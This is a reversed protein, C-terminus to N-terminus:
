SAAETMEPGCEIVEREIEIFEGTEKTELKPIREIKKVKRCSPPLEDPYTVLTVNDVTGRLCTYNGRVAKQRVQIGFSRYWETAQQYTTNGHFGLDVKGEHDVSLQVLRDGPFMERLELAIAQLREIRPDM